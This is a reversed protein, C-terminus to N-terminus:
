PLSEFWRAIDDIERNSIEHAHPYRRVTLDAGSRDRLYGATRAVLDAPIMADADGHGYFVPVAALRQPKALDALADLAIAGSLLVAGGYRQPAALLVAAAMMMGASFGFLVCPRGALGDAAAAWREFSALSARLSATVPRAPGRNEFWTYGGGDVPVPARVSAYDYRRPLRSALDILDDEDAGRGHLFVVVPTQPGSRAARRWRVVPGTWNGRDGLIEGNM